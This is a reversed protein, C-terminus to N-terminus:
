EIKINAETATKKWTVYQDKVLKEFAAPTSKVPEIGLARIREIADPATAAEGFDRALKEVIEKPTGAPAIIGQPSDVGLGPYTESITPFNFGPMRKTNALAIVKLKGAEIHPRVSVWVDFMLPVRGALVDEPTDWAEYTADIGAARFAAEFIAPSKTHGLPHGIVGARKTM